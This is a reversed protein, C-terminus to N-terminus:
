AIGKSVRQLLMSALLGIFESRVASPMSTAAPELAQSRSRSGENALFQRYVEMWCRFGRTIILALGPGQRWGQVAQSRLEEYAAVLRRDTFPDAVPQASVSTKKSSAVSPRHQAPSGLHWFATRNSRGTPSQLHGTRGGPTTGCVGDVRRDAQARITARAQTALTRGSWNGSIGGTSSLVVSTLVWVDKRGPQGTAQRGGSAPADRVKGAGPRASRLVRQRSFERAAGNRTSSKAHEAPAPVITKNEASRAYCTFRIIHGSSYIDLEKQPHEASDIAIEPLSLGQCLLVAAQGSSLMRNVHPVFNGKCM